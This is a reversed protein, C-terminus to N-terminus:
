EEKYHILLGGIYLNPPKVNDYVCQPLSPFKKVIEKARKDDRALFYGFPAQLSADGRSVKKPEGWKKHHDSWHIGYVYYNM